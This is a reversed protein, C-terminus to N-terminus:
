PSQATVRQSACRSLLIEWFLVQSNGTPEYSVLAEVMSGECIEPRPVILIFWRLDSESPWFFESAPHGACLAGESLDEWNM